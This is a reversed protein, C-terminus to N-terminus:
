GRGGGDGPAAATAGGASPGAARGTARLDPVALMMLNAVVLSLAIFYFVALLGYRDAMIGGVIPMLTAFLAQTTFLAGITTGELERPAMGITWRFTAPRISYMFFGVFALAGVFVTGRDFAAFVLLAITTSFMGTTAVRKPGIRDSLSGSIPTAIMGSIQVVALYVGLTVAALCLLSEEARDEALWVHVAILLAAVGSGTLPRHWAAGLICAFWGTQFLAADAELVALLVYFTAFDFLSSVPGIVWMFNRIFGIDFHQPHRLEAAWAPGVVPSAIRLFLIAGGWVAGLFLLAGVDAPTVSRVPTPRPASM